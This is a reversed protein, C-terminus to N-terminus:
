LACFGFRTDLLVATWRNVQMLPLESAAVWRADAADGGARVRGSLYDARLDVIVYHFRVRGAADREIHDFTTVVERAKVVVGTEELVEREAADTLSEGLLVSGGPVAWSGEAPPQGRRVLLIRGAKFVFAGVAVRPLRPYAVGTEEPTGIGASDM